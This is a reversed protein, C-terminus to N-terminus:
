NLDTFESVLSHKDASLIASYLIPLLVICRGTILYFTTYLVIQLALDSTEIGKGQSSCGSSFKQNKLYFTRALILGAASAKRHRPFKVSLGDILM